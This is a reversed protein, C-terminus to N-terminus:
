YFESIPLQNLQERYTKWNPMFREMLTVFSSNHKSEIFHALEHVVVYELCEIPKKALESNLRINGAEVNCSGWKTKMKQIYVNKVTVGMLRQWKGIMEPMFIRIQERHTNWDLLALLELEFYGGM